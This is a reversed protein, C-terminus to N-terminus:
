LSCKRTGSDKDIHADVCLAEQENARTISVDEQRGFVGACDSSYFQFPQWTKGHDMSKFIALHEPREVIGIGNRRTRGGKGGCFHISIYTLEYKKKLSVTLSVNEGPTLAGTQWCTENNPNHLDTLFHALRGHDQCEGDGGGDLCADSEAEVRVGFAANVFDPLCSVSKKAKDDYCPDIESLHQSLDGPSSSLSSSLFASTPGAWASLALLLLLGRFGSNGDSVM